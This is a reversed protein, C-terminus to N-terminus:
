GRARGQLLQFLINVAFSLALLVFGLALAYDFCGMSIHNVISTTLTRTFGEANGGLITAVGVEGVVRGYGAIVAALIGFRSERFVTWLAQRENAGLSLAARRVSRDVRTVVALTLSTMLPLILVIEGIIIGPVTFLLGLSGFLGQRSVFSYVLLGVVVTPIGMLTNLATVLGRKFRFDHEAITVGLPVAIVSAVCTAILAILLSRAACEMVDGDFSVILRFANRLADSLTEM